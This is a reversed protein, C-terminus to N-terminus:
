QQHERGSRRAFGFAVLSAMFNTYMWPMCLTFTQVWPQRYFEALALWEETEFHEVNEREMEALKAIESDNRKMEEDFFKGYLGKVLRFAKGAIQNEDPGLWAIVGQSKLYVKNMSQVQDSREALDKQNICLQDAWIILPSTSKRIGQLAAKLSRTISLAQGACTLTESLTLDGWVYSLAIYEPTYDPRAVILEVMLPEDGQGPLLTLLRCPGANGIPAYTYTIGALRSMNM